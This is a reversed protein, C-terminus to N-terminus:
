SQDKLQMSKYLLYNLEPREKGLLVTDAILNLVDEINQYDDDNIIQTVKFVRIPLTKTPRVVYVLRIRDIPTGEQKMMWAYAMLQIYYNWPIKTTNPKTGVNKYDVIITNTRNDFTGAVYVGDKVEYCLSREVETPKNYRIYENILAAAMDPYLERVEQINVDPKLLQRRLYAEVMESSTDKGKVYMEALGHVISGLVSSTNGQFQAEGLVRDRICM